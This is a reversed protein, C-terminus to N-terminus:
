PGGLRIGEEEILAGWREYQDKILAAFSEPTDGELEYGDGEMRRRVDTLGQVERFAANLTAVIEPPVGPLGILGQWGAIEVGRVGAEETVPQGLAEAVHPALM